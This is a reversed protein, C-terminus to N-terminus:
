NDAPAALRFGQDSQATFLVNTAYLAKQLASDGGFWYSGRQGRYPLTSGDLDNWESANGDQDFTGYYSGSNSFAGVDTLYNQTTVYTRSRNISFVGTFYNVNNPESGVINGPTIDSNTAYIHYGGTNNSLTPNYYAAKYWENETPIYFTPPSGTNPNIANKPVSNGSIIGNLAYAGNETTTSNQSGTPKGNAMWNAFRAASFWDVYTIPRNASNGDNKVVSYTYHGSSGEQKIGAINLDSGMNSVYLSYTDTVAISNLFETYQGITVLYKGIKYIYNVSGYGTVVDNLNGPNGITVLEYNDSGLVINASRKNSVSFLCFDNKYPQCGYLTYGPTNVRIGALLYDHNPTAFITLNSASVHYNQCSLPGVGNLCLVINLNLPAGVATVDFLPGSSAYTIFSITLAFILFYLHRISNVLM